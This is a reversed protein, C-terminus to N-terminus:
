FWKVNEKKMQENAKTGGIVGREVATAQRISTDNM